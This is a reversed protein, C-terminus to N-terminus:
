RVGFKRKIRASSLIREEIENYLRPTVRKVSDADDAYMTIGGLNVSFGGGTAINSTQSSLFTTLDRNLESGVVRENKQLLWTGDEPIASIGDHAMGALGSGAVIGAFIPIAAAAKAANDAYKTNTPDILAMVQNYVYQITLEATKQEAYAQVSQLLGNALGNIDIKGTQAFVTLFDAVAPTMADFAGKIDTNALANGLSGIGKEVEGNAAALDLMAKEHKYVSETIEGLELSNDLKMMEGEYETLTPNTRIFMDMNQKSETNYDQQWRDQEIASVGRDYQSQAEAAQEPTIDEMKLIEQLKKKLAEIRRDFEDLKRDAATTDVDVKFEDLANDIREQHREQEKRKQEEDELQILRIKLNHVTQLDRLAKDTLSSNEATREKELRAAEIRYNTNEEEIRKTLEDGGVTDIAVQVRWKEGTLQELESKIGSLPDSKDGKQSEELKLNALATNKYDVALKKLIPDSKDMKEFTDNIEKLKKQYDTLGATSAKSEADALLGSNAKYADQFKKANAVSGGSLMSKAYDTKERDVITQLEKIRQETKERAEAAANVKKQHELLQKYYALEKEQNKFMSVQENGHRYDSDFVSLTIEAMASKADEKLQRFRTSLVEVATTASKTTDGFNNMGGSMQRMAEAVIVKKQELASLERGLERQKRAILDTQDIIVGADDLMLTSGRTLGTFITTMLQEFSKGTANAYQRLYATTTAIEDATMGAIMAQNGVMQAQMNTITNGTSERIKKLLEDSKASVKEAQVEFVRAVDMSQAGDKVAAAAATMTEKITYIAAGAAGAKVALGSLANSASGIKSGTDKGANGINGLGAAVNNIQETPLQVKFASGLSTGATVASTRVTDLASSLGTINASAPKASAITNNLNSLNLVAPAVTSPVTSMASNLLTTRTRLTDVSASVASFTSPAATTKTNNLASNVADVGSKAPKASDSMKGLASQVNAVGQQAQKSDIVIKIEIKNEAM